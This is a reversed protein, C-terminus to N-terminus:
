SPSTGDISYTPEMSNAANIDKILIDIQQMDENSGTVLLNLIFLAKEPGIKGQREHKSWSKIVERVENPTRVRSVQPLTTTLGNKVYTHCIFLQLVSIIDTTTVRKLAVTVNSRMILM